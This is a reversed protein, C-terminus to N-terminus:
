DYFQVMNVHFKRMTLVDAVDGQQSPHFDCLFGYRPTKRWDSVVDFATSYEQVLQENCYVLIDVGYGKFEGIM